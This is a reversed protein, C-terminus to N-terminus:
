RAYKRKIDTLRAQLDREQKGLEAAHAELAELRKQLDQLGQEAEEAEQSIQRQSAVAERISSGIQDSKRLYDMVMQISWAAMVVILFIYGWDVANEVGEPM